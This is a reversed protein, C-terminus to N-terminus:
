GMFGGSSGGCDGGCDGGSSFAASGATEASNCALFEGDSSDSVTGITEVSGESNPSGGVEANFNSFSSSALSGGFIDSLSFGNDLGFTDESNDANNGFLLGSNNNSNQKSNSFFGSSSKNSFDFNLYAM